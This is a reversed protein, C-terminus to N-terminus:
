NEKKLQKTMEYVASELEELILPKTIYKTAGLRTAENMREKDDVATVMIVNATKDFEKIRKLAEIGDMKRMRVDLLIIDFKHKRACKVAEEGNSAVAVEFDREEFFHKVFDCVDVEDDVVLMKLM